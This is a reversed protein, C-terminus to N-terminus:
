PWGRRRRVRFGSGYSGCGTGRRTDDQHVDRRHKSAGVGSRLFARASPSPYPPQYYIFSRISDPVHELLGYAVAYVAFPVILWGIAGVLTGARVGAWRSRGGGRAAVLGAGACILLSLVAQADYLLEWTRRPLDTLLSVVIFAVQVVVLAGAGALGAKVVPNMQTNGSIPRVGERQAAVPAGRRQM